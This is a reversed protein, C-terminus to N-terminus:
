CRAKTCAPKVASSGGASGEEDPRMQTTVDSKDVRPHRRTSPSRYRDGHDFSSNLKLLEICGGLSRGRSVPLRGFWFM